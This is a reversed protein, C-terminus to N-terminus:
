VIDVTFNELIIQQILILIFNLCILLGFIFSIRQRLDDFGDIGGMNKDNTIIFNIMYFLLQFGIIGHTLNSYLFFGPPVKKMNISEYYNMNISILWLLYIVIIVLDWSIVKKMQIDDEKNYLQIITNMFVLSILSIMIVFYSMINITAPGNSGDNTAIQSFFLKAFISIFIFCFLIRSTITSESIFKTKQIEAFLQQMTNKHNSM